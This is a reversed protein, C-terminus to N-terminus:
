SEQKKTLNSPLKTKACKLLIKSVNHRLNEAKICSGNFSEQNEIRLAAQETSAVIDLVPVRKLAPVFKPGLNLLELKSVPIESSTLNLVAENVIKNKSSNHSNHQSIGALVEYKRKLRINMSTYVKEWCYELNQQLCEFHDRSLKNKLRDSLQKMEKLIYHYRQKADNTAIRLMDFNYSRTVNIAKRSMVLPRSRFTKPLVKNYYCRSMFIWRNKASAAQKKLKQLKSSLKYVVKGYTDNLIKYLSM